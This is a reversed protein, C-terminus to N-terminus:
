IMLSESREHHCARHEEFDEGCGEEEGFLGGEGERGEKECAHKEEQQDPDGGCEELNGEM